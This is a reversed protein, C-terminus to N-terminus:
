LLDFPEPLYKLHHYITKDKGMDLYSCKSDFQVTTLDVDDIKPLEFNTVIYFRDFSHSLM